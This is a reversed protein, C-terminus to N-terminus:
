APSSSAPRVRWSSSPRATSPHGTSRHRTTDYRNFGAGADHVDCLVHTLGDVDPDPEWEDTSASSVFVGPQREM